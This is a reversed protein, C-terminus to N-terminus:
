LKRLQLLFGRMMMVNAKANIRHKRSESLATFNALSYSVVMCITSAKTHVNPSAFEMNSDDKSSRNSNASIGKMM